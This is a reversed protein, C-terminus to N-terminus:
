DQLNATLDVLFSAVDREHGVKDVELLYFIECFVDAVCAISIQRSDLVNLDREVSARPMRVM